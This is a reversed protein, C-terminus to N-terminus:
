EVARLFEGTHLLDVAYPRVRDRLERDDTVVLLPQDEPAAAVEFVLEDDATVGPATFRVRVTRSSSGSPPSGHRSDFFVAFEARFRATAAELLKVLWARQQELTLHGRHNLSVNYGDVLVLHQPTLLARAHASTGPEVGRAVVSPRGPRSRQTGTRRTRREEEASRREAEEAARAAEARRRVRQRREEEERRVTRLEERLEGLERELQRRAREVARDREDAAAALEQELAAVREDVDAREERAGDLKREAAAARASAGDAQRRAVDRQQTLERVRARLRDLEPQADDGDQATPATESDDTAPAEPEPPTLRRAWGDADQELLRRSVGEWLPGGEALRGAMEQRGDGDLLEVSSSGALERLDDPLDGGWSRLVHRTHGVLQAWTDDDLATLARRPPPEGTM